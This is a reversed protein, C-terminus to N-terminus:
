ILKTMTESFQFEQFDKELIEMIKKRNIPEEHKISYVQEFHIM